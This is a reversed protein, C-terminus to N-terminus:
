KPINNDLEYSYPNIIRVEEKRQKRLDQVPLHALIIILIIERM